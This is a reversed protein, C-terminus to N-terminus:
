RRKLKFKIDFGDYEGDGKLVKGDSTLQSDARFVGAGAGAASFKMGAPRTKEVGSLAVADEGFKDLNTFQVMGNGDEKIELIMTGSTMGRYWPGSWTGSLEDALAVPLFAMWAAAALSMLITRRMNNGENRIYALHRCCAAGLIQSGQKRKVGIASM